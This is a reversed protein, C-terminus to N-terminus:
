SQSCIMAIFSAPAIRQRGEVRDEFGALGAVFELLLEEGVELGAGGGDVQEVEVGRGEVLLSKM